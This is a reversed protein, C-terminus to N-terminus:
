LSADTRAGWHGKARSWTEHNLWWQEGCVPCVHTETGIETAEYPSSLALYGCRGCNHLHGDPGDPNCEGCRCTWLKSTSM